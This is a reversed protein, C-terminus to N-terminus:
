RRAKAGLWITEDSPATRQRITLPRCISREVSAPADHVAALMSEGSWSVAATAGDAVTQQVTPTRPATKKVVSPVRKARSGKVSIISKVDTKAVSAAVAVTEDASPREQRVVSWPFVHDEM